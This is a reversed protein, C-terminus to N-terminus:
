ERRVCLFESLGKELKPFKNKYDPYRVPFAAVARQLREFTQGTIEVVDSNGQKAKNKNSCWEEYALQMEKEPRIFEDVVEQFLKEADTKMFALQRTDELDINCGGVESAIEELRSVREQDWWHSNFFGCRLDEHSRDDFVYPLGGSYPLRMFAIDDSIHEYVMDVAERIGVCLRQEIQKTLDILLVVDNRRVFKNM